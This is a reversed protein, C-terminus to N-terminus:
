QSLGNPDPDNVPFVSDITKFLLADFDTVYIKFSDCCNWDEYIMGTEPIRVPKFEYYILEDYGKM